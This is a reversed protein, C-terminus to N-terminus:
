VHARGIEAKGLLVPNALGEDLMRRAAQIIREDKGEPLVLQQNRRKAREIFRQIIDM